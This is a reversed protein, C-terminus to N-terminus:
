DCGHTARDEVRKSLQPDAQKLKPATEGLLERMSDGEYEALPKEHCLVMLAEVKKADGPKLSGTRAASAVTTTAVEVTEVEDAELEQVGGCGAVVLVACFAPVGLFRRM